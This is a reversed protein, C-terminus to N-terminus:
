PSIGSRSPGRAIWGCIMWGFKKCGLIAHILYPPLGWWCCHTWVKCLAYTSLFVACEMARFQTKNFGAHSPTSLGWTGGSAQVLPLLAFWILFTACACLWSPQLRARM